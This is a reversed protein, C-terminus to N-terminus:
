RLYAACRPDKDPVDKGKAEGKPFAKRDCLAAFLDLMEQTLQKNDGKIRRGMYTSPAGSLIKAWDEYAKQRAHTGLSFEKDDFLFTTGDTGHCSACREQYLAKGTDPNGGSRLVYNGPSGKKLEFIDDPHVLTRDRVGVIFAAINALQSDSLVSGFAPVDKSGSKLWAAIEAETGKKELLNVDLVFPKNMMEPGYIGAKGRLDWGFLNKLRYDHGGDNLFPKGDQTLLTGDQNPGGKGDAKGKTKPNDPAFAALKWRDFDQGGNITGPPLPAPSPTASASAAASPSGSASATSQAVASASTPTAVSASPQPQVPSEARCSVMALSLALSLFTRNMAHENQM